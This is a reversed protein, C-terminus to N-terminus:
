RYRYGVGEWVTSRVAASCGMGDWGMWELWALDQCSGLLPVVRRPVIENWGALYKMCERRGGEFCGLFGWFGLFGGEVEVEVEVEVEWGVM